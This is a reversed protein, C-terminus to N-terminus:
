QSVHSTTLADQTHYHGQRIKLLKSNILNRALNKFLWSKVFGLDCAHKRYFEDPSDFVGYDYDIEQNQNYSCTYQRELNPHIAKLAAIEYNFFTDDVIAKTIQKQISQLYIHDLMYGVINIWKSEVYVEVWSHVFNRPALHFALGSITKKHLEKDITVAHFRCPIHCKRLLAMLLISKSVGCGYGDHLVRSAPIDDVKNYGFVIENKIFSFINDIRQQKSLNLWGQREVLDNLWPHTYNLLRTKKLYEDIPPTKTCFYEVYPFTTTIPWYTYKM